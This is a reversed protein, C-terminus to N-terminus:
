GGMFTEWIVVMMKLELWVGVLFDPEKAIYGGVFYKPSKVPPNQM